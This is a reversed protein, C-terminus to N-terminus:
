EFCMEDESCYLNNKKSQNDDANSVVDDNSIVDDDNSIIDEDDSQIIESPIDPDNSLNDDNDDSQDIYDSLNDDSDSMDLLFDDSNNSIDVHPKNNKQITFDDLTIKPNYLKNIIKIVEIQIAGSIHIFEKNQPITLIQETINGIMLSVNETDRFNFDCIKGIELVIDFVVLDFHKNPLDIGLFNGIYDLIRIKCSILKLINFELIQPEIFTLIYQYIQIVNNNDLIKSDLMHNIIKQSIQEIPSPPIISSKQYNQEVPSSVPSFVPSFPNFSRKQYFELSDKKPINITLQPSRNRIESFRSTGIKKFESIKKSIEPDTQCPKDFVQEDFQDLSLITFTHDNHMVQKAFHLYVNYEGHRYFLMPHIHKKLVTYFEKPNHYNVRKLDLLVYYQMSTINSDEFINKTIDM